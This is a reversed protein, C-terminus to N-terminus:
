QNEDPQKQTSDSDSRSTRISQRHANLDEGGQEPLRPKWRGKGLVSTLLSVLCGLRCCGLGCNRHGVHEMVQDLVLDMVKDLM